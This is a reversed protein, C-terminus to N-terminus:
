SRAQRSPSAAARLEKPQQVRMGLRPTAQFLRGPRGPARDGPQLPVPVPARERRPQDRVALCQQGLQARPRPIRAPLDAVTEPPQRGQVGEVIRVAGELRQPVLDRCPRRLLVRDRVVGLAM